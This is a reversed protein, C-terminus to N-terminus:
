ASASFEDLRFRRVMSTRRGTDNRKICGAHLSTLSEAAATHHVCQMINVVPVERSRPLCEGCCRLDERRCIALRIVGADTSIDSCGNAAAWSWFCRADSDYGVLGRLM